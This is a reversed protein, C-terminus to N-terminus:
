FLIIVKTWLCLHLLWPNSPRSDRWPVSRGLVTRTGIRGQSLRHRGTRIIKPVKFNQSLFLVLVPPFPRGESGPLLLLIINETTKALNVNVGNWNHLRKSLVQNNIHIWARSFLLYRSFKQMFEHTHLTVSSYILFLYHSTLTSLWLYDIISEPKIAM